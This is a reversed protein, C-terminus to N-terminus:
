IIPNLHEIKNDVISVIDKVGNDYEIIIAEKRTINAKIIMIEAEDKPYESCLWNILIIRLSQENM